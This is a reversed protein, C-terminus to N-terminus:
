KDTLGEKALWVQLGKKTRDKLTVKRGRGSVEAKPRFDLPWQWADTIHKGDRDRVGWLQSVILGDDLQVSYRVALTCGKVEPLGDPVPGTWPHGVLVTPNRPAKPEEVKPKTKDTSKAPAKTTTKATTKTVKAPQQGNRSALWASVADPTARLRTALADIDADSRVRLGAEKVRAAVTEIKTTPRGSFTKGNGTAKPKGDVKGNTPTKKAQRATAQRETAPEKGVVKADPRTVVPKAKPQTISAQLQKALDTDDQAVARAIDDFKNPAKATTPKAARRRGTPAQQRAATGTDAPVAKRGKRPATPARTPRTTSTAKAM